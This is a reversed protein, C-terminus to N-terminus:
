RFYQFESSNFLVHALDTWVQEEVLGPELETRERYNGGQVRVFNLAQRLELAQPQRGFATLYMRDVRDPPEAEQTIARRAWQRAQEVVFENNMLMLAQSAVNSVNRRSITSIPPPYDFALLMPTLFNRRVGIYLSRRGDGDLPGSRPRGMGQQYDSIHPAVSPGFMRADLSGSVALMSDRVVEGEVRRVPMHHLLRNTPDIRAARADVRSSQGYVRSTLILRHLAKISWGSQIFRRTLYDLLDPHSPTAGTRGLNDPSPVMGQGFHHKWVRNVMVRATLPNDPHVLWDALQRRGSGRLVPPNNEGALVQLFRRPTEQGLNEHSGRLHIRVNRPNEDRSITAFVSGSVTKELSARGEQLTSVQQRQQEPLLVLLDEARALPNLALQLQRWTDGEVSLGEQARTFLEQYASALAQLSNVDARGLLQMVKRNPPSSLRPPQDSDSFVIKDIVIHGEPNRDVIELYCIRGVSSESRLTRWQFRERGDPVAHFLKHGSEVLTLRSDTPTTHHPRGPQQTGALRVHLYLSPMRFKGSTLSGMWADSGGQFSNALGQGWYGGLSQNPPIRGLTPTDRFAQGSRTWARFDSKEFDEYVVAGSQVSRRLEEGWHRLDKLVAAAGQAFSDFRGSALGDVLTAFPYFPHEPEQCATSLYDTFGQLVGEKLGRALALDGANPSDEGRLPSILEAAALLYRALNKALELRAAEILSSITANIEGIRHQLGAIERRRSPSDIVEESLTTSHLIGALGYYDAMSIPDFKHDHCRACAVTLGLFAKGLVDLQNDVQDARVKISDTPENIVEGFWLFSTALPSEWTRGDPALRKDELLDGAIHEQVFRDYPLDQNFARVVYDRYRWADIKGSDYEHGNTEAYRVLDLWHRAWREGYHPSSLLREITTSSAQPTPDGLFAEIEEPTPPLGILDLTVRRLWTRRDAPPAPALGEGDLASLIFADIPSTPWDKTKVPPPSPNSIPRLSWFNRGEEFDIGDGGAAGAVRAPHPAGLDVWQRLDAIQQEALPGGPPMNLDPHNGSVVQILLSSQTDGPVLLAGSTGGRDLGEATDLRLDGMLPKSQASHCSYCNEALVPRVRKEFFEIAEGSTPTQALSSSFGAALLMLVSAVLDSCRHQRAYAVSANSSMVQLLGVNGM